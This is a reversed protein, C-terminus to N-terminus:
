QLTEGGKFPNDLDPGQEEEQNRSTVVADQRLITAEISSSKSITNPPIKHFEEDTMYGLPCINLIVVDIVEVPADPGVKRHFHLQVTQQAKGILRVPFNATDNTIIANFRATNIGIEEGNPDKIKFVLEAAIMFFHMKKAVTATM